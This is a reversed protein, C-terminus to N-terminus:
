KLVKPLGWCFFVESELYDHPYRAIVERLKTVSVVKEGGSVGSRKIYRLLSLTDPFEVRYRRVEFEGQFHKMFLAELEKSQPLLSTYGTMQHLTEFTKCTFIALACQKGGHAIKEFLAPLDKAWQLASSSVILDVPREFLSPNDFSDHIIRVHLPAPHAQCMAESADVGIFTEVDWHLNKFVAGTGCGLDLITKPRNKIKSVLTRAVERQVINHDDYQAAFRSFQRTHASKEKM